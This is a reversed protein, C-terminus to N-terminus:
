NTFSYKVYLDASTSGDSNTATGTLKFIVNDGNTPWNLSGGRGSGPTIKFTIGTGVLGGTSDQSNSSSGGTSATPFSSGSGFTHAYVSGSWSYSTAGTARLYAYTLFNVYGADEWDDFEASVSIELQTGFSESTASTWDSYDRDFKDDIGASEYIKFANNQGSSANEAISVATPPSGAASAAICGVVGLNISAM